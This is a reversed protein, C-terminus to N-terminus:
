MAKVQDVLKKSKQTFELGFLSSSMKGFNSDVEVLPLLAKNMQTIIKTHWLHSIQASVNGLLKIAVTVACITQEPTDEWAEVIASLPALADLVHTQISALEKNIAKSAPPIEPKLYNDLQPTQSASAQPLSYANRIKLCDAYELRITCATKIVAEMEESVMTMSTPPISRGAAAPNDGWDIV